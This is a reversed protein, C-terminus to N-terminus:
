AASQVSKTCGPQKAPKQLGYALLISPVRWLYYVPWDGLNYYLSGRCFVCGPNDCLAFRPNRSLLAREIRYADAAKIALSYADGVRGIEL